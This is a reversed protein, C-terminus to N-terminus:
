IKFRFPNYSVGHDFIDINEKAKLWGVVLYTIPTFVIEYTVKWIYQAVIMSKIVGLPVLGWFALSIFLITDIGEGVLSSLITRFWLKEGRSIIKLKSLVVANSWEGFFYATLSAAVIRPTMGLVKLYHEQGQWFEPYPLAVALTFVGAMLLNSALGTWIVTRARYFGYVETIVDGLVYSIPFLIVAAPLVVGAIAILKGAIINSLLLSSVFVGAIVVLFRESTSNSANM